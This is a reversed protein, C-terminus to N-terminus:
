IEREIESPILSLSLRHSPTPIYVDIYEERGNILKPKTNIFIQFRRNKAEGYLLQFNKYSLVNAGHTRGLMRIANALHTDEMDTIKVLQGDKKRWYDVDKKKKKM